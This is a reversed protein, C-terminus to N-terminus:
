SRRRSRRLIAVLGIGLLGVLVIHSTSPEPIASVYFNDVGAIGAQASNRTLFYANLQGDSLAANTFGNSWSLLSGGSVVGNSSSNYLEVKYGFGNTAGLLSLDVQLYYWNSATLTAVPSAPQTLNANTGNEMTSAYIRVDNAQTRPGIGVSLSQTTTNTTAGSNGGYPSFTSSDTTRGVGLQLSEGTFLSNATWQFYISLTIANTQGSFTADTVEAGRSGPGISSPVWGSDSLGGSGSQTGVGGQHIGAYFNNTLQGSSNFDYLQQSQAPPAVLLLLLFALCASAFYPLTKMINLLKGGSVFFDDGIKHLRQAFYPKFSRSELLSVEALNM